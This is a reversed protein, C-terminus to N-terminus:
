RSKLSKQQKFLGYYFFKGFCTLDDQPAQLFPSAGFTNTTSIVSHRTQNQNDKNFALSM